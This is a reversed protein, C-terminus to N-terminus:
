HLGISVLQTYLLIAATGAFMFAAPGDAVANQVYLLGGNPSDSSRSPHHKFYKYPDLISGTPLTM